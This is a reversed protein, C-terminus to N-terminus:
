NKHINSFLHPRPEEVFSFNSGPVMTSGQEGLHSAKLCLTPKEPETQQFSSGGSILFMSENSAKLSFQFLSINACRYYYKKKYPMNTRSKGLRTFTEMTKEVISTEILSLHVQRNM